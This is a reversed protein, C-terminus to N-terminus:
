GVAETRLPRKGSAAPFARMWAIAITRSRV